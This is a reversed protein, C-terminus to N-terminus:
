QSLQKAALNTAALFWANGEKRMWNWTPPNKKKLV